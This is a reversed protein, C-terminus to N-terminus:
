LLEWIASYEVALADAVLKVVRHMLTPLDADALAAQTLEALAAPQRASMGADKREWDVTAPHGATYGPTDAQGPVGGVGARDGATTRRAHQVCGAHHEARRM